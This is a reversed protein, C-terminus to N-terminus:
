VVSKRDGWPTVVDGDSSMAAPVATSARIGQRVPNGALPLDEAAGGVVKAVPKGDIGYLVTM